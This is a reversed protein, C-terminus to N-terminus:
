GKTRLELQSTVDLYLQSAQAGIVFCVVRGAMSLHIEGFPTRVLVASVVFPMAILVCILSQLLSIRRRVLAAGCEPLSGPDFCHRDELVSHREQV